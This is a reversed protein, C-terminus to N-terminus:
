CGFGSWRTSNDITKEVRGAVGRHRACMSIGRGLSKLLRQGFRVVVSWVSTTAGKTRVEPPPAHQVRQATSQECLPGM